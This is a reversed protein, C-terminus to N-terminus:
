DMSQTLLQDNQKEAVHDMSPYPDQLVQGIEEKEEPTMEEDKNQSKEVQVIVPTLADDDQTVAPMQKKGM